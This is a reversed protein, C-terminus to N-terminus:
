DEQAIEPKPAGRMIICDHAEFATGDLMLGSITLTIVDGFEVDGLLAVIDQTSFKLTLDDFGDPGDTNCGCSDADMYPTAVDEIDTKLPAISGELLITSVDIQTVDGTDTGLIAAPTKGQSKVNLPNPCSGPKIDFYFPGVQQVQADFVPQPAPMTPENESCGIVFISVLVLGVIGAFGHVRRM